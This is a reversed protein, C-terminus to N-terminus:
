RARMAPFFIVDRINRDTLIMVLRDIGLGIGTTPPMGYRLAEIFEQDSDGLNEIHTDVDNLESYANGIEMGAMFIEFREAIRPNESSPLALPSVSAPYDYVITPNVLTPEVSTEFLEMVASDEMSLADVGCVTSVAEFLSIREVSSLDIEQGQYSQTTGFQEGLGLILEATLDMSFQYDQFATYAEIFTFEPNHRQSIGENRFNRGIEFVRDYGGIILRRLYLEPAIRLYFESDLSNFHTTFPRAEAGGYVPQLVPTEFEIYERDEFFRRIYQIIRSRTIFTQYEGSDNVTQLYRRRRILERDTIEHFTEEGNDRVAPFPTQPVFLVEAEEARITPHGTRTVFTEGSVRLFSGVHASVLEQYNELQVNAFVQYIEGQSFIDLFSARGMERRSMLRGNIEMQIGIEM